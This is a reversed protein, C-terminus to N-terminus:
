IEDTGGTGVIGVNGPRYVYSPKMDQLGMAVGEQQTIDQNLAFYHTELNGLNAQLQSTQAMADKQSIINLISAAVLYLYACILAVLFFSLVRLAHAEYRHEMALISVKKNVYTNM